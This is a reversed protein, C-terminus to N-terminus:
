SFHPTKSVVLKSQNTRIFWLKHPGVVPRSIDVWMTQLFKFHSFFNCTKLILHFTFYKIIYYHHNTITIM